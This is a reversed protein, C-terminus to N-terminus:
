QPIRTTSGKPTLIVEPQPQPEPSKRIDGELGIGGVEKPSREPARASSDVPKPRDFWPNTQDATPSTSNNTDREFAEVGASQPERAM